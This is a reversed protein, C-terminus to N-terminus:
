PSTRPPGSPSALFALRVWTSMKVFMIEWDGHLQLFIRGPGHREGLPGVLDDHAVHPHHLAPDYRGIEAAPLQAAGDPRELTPIPLACLYHFLEHTFSRWLNGYQHRGGVLLRMGHCLPRHKGQALGFPFHPSAVLSGSSCRRGLRSLQLAVPSVVRVPPRRRRGRTGAPLIGTIGPEPAPPQPPM